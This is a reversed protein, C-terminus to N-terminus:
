PLRGPLIGPLWPLSKRHCELALRVDPEEWEPVHGWVRITYFRLAAQESFRIPQGRDEAWAQMRDLADSM